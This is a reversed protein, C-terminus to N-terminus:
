TTLNHKFGSFKDGSKILSVRVGVKINEPVKSGFCQYEHTLAPQKTKLQAITKYDSMRFLHIEVAYGDSQEDYVTLCDGDHGFAGRGGPDWDTTEVFGSNTGANATGSALFTLACAAGLAAVIHKKIIVGM